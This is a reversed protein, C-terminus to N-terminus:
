EGGAPASEQNSSAAQAAAEAEVKTRGRAMALAGIVAVLLTISVLEFPVMAGRYVAQGLAEVGGFTLCDSGEACGRVMGMEPNHTLLVFTIFLMIGGMLAAALGRTARGDESPQIEASPGIIMIVFVFLVVVAGAYVLLQIAALLHAHLSLFVGVLAIIHGLLALAARLPKRAAVTGVAAAIATVASLLFLIQGGDSM